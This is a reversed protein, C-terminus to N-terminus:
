WSLSTQQRTLKAGRQASGTAVAADIQRFKPFAQFLPAADLGKLAAPNACRYRLSADLDAHGDAKAAAPAAAAVTAGSAALLAPDLVDSSIEAASVTCQAAATPKFLEGNHFRQAMTRVAKRERDNRPAREFGLLNDLPSELTIELQEGDLAVALKAVGHQHVGPKNAHALGPTAAALAFLGCVALALPLAQPLVPTKPKLAPKM